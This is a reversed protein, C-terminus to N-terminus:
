HCELKAKKGKLNAGLLVKLGGGALLLGLGCRGLFWEAGPRLM